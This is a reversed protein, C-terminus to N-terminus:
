RLVGRQRRGPAAPEGPAQVVARGRRFAPHNRVLAVLSPARDAVVRAARDHRTRPIGVPRRPEDLPRDRPGPPGPALLVERHLSGDGPLLGITYVVVSMGLFAGLMVLCLARWRAVLIPDM